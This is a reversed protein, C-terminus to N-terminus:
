WVKVKRGEIEFKVKGTLELATLVDILTTNKPIRGYFLEHGAVQNNVEINYWRSLQKILLTLEIGHFDFFGNKWAIVSSTDVNNVLKISQGDIRGQEGPQLLSNINGTSLKVSGELLTTAMPQQDGYANVNFHTGLVEILSENQEVIFPKGANHKVEFYVEGSVRVRRTNGTFATPFSISSAANLWVNSGDPLVLQYDRGIPTSVTNSVPQANKNNALYAISGNRKVIKTGGDNALAGNGASDLVITEGTSLTLLAGGHGPQVNNKFREAQSKVVDKKPVSPSRIIFYGGIGALVILVAAAVRPLQLLRYRTSVPLAVSSSDIAQNVKGLMQSAVANKDGHVAMDWDAPVQMDNFLSNYAHLEADSAQGSAIKEALQRIEEQTM